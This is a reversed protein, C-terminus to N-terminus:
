LDDPHLVFLYTVPLSANRWRQPLPPLPAASRVARMASRDLVDVGSSDLVRLGTVRGDRLIQWELRVAIPERLETVLPRRWNEILVAQVASAYWPFQDSLGEMAAVGRTTEIQFDNDPDAEEIEEAEPEPTAIPEAKKSARVDVPATKKKKVVPKPDVKKPIQKPAAKQEVKKPPPATAKQPAEQRAAPAAVLSVIIPETAVPRPRLAPLALLVAITGIHVIMSGILFRPLPRNRPGFSAIIRIRPSM